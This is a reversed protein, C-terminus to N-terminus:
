VYYPTWLQYTPNVLILSNCALAHVPHFPFHHFIDSCWASNPLLINPILNGFRYQHRLFQYLQPHFSDRSPLFRPILFLYVQLFIYTNEDRSSIM